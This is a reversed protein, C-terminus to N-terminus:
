DLERIREVRYGESAANAACVACAAECQDEAAYLYVHFAAPLGCQWCPGDQTSWEFIVIVNGERPQIQQYMLAAGLRGGM